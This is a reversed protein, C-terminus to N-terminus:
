TERVETFKWTNGLVNAVRSGCYPCTTIGYGMAGGCNPCNAAVSDDGEPLMYTYYLDFRQQKIRNAERCCTAAQFVIVRQAGSRRYQAIVVNHIRFGNKDRNRNMLYDRAYTKALDVDFDPFDKLIHPLLLRDCGNLSRPNEWGDQDVEKFAEVIDPNGFVDKSFSRVKKRIYLVLVTIALIVALFVGLFVYFGM